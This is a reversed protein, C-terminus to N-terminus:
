EGGGTYGLRGLLASDPANPGRRVPIQRGLSDQATMSTGSPLGEIVFRFEQAGSRNPAQMRLFSDMLGGGNSPSWPTSLAHTWFRDGPSGAFRDRYTADFERPNSDRRSSVWALGGGVAAIGALVPHKALAGGVSLLGKGGKLAVMLGQIGLYGYLARVLGSGPREDDGLIKDVGSVADALLGIGRALEVVASEIAKIREPLGEGFSAAWDVIASRNELLTKTWRDQAQTVAPLLQESIAYWTGKFARVTRDWSDVNEEAAKAAKSSVLGLFLAEERLRGIEQRGAMALNVMQAGGGGFAKNAVAMRKEATELKAINHLIADLAHETSEAALLDRMLGPSVGRRDLFEYLAGTGARAEGLARNFAVMSATFQEQAVGNQGAAYEYEQFVEVGMGLRAATKAVRDGENAFRRFAYFVSGTATAVASLGIAMSRVHGGADRFHQGATRLHAMASQGGIRDYARRIRASANEVVRSATDRAGLILM